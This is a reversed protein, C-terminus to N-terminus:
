ASRIQLPAAQSSLVIQSGELLAPSLLDAFFRGRAPWDLFPQQFPDFGLYVSRGLGFPREPTIGEPDGTVIPAAPQGVQATFPDVPYGYDKTLTRSNG